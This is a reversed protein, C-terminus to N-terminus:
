HALIFLSVPMCLILLLTIFLGGIIALVVKPKKAPARFSLIRAPAAFGMVVWFIGLIILFTGVPPVRVRWFNTVGIFAGWYGVVIALIGLIMIVIRGRIAKVM